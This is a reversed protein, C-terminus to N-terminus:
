SRLTEALESSQRVDSVAQEIEGLRVVGLLTLAIASDTREILGEDGLQRLQPGFADDLSRGFAAEFDAEPYSALRVGYSFRRAMLADQGLAQATVACEEGALARTTYGPYTRDNEYIVGNLQSVAGQGAGIWDRGQMQWLGYYHRHEASRTYHFATYRRYGHETLMADAVQLQEYREALTAAEYDGVGVLSNLRTKPYVWLPYLALHDLDYSLAIEVDERIIDSDAMPLGYILDIGVSPLVERAAGIARLADEREHKRGIAALVSDDFTQVGMNFKLRPVTALVELKEPMVSTPFGEVVVESDPTDAIFSRVENLLEELQAPSLMTPTGGGLQATALKRSGFVEHGGLTRLESLLASQYHAVTEPTVHKGVVTVFDCFYCRTVCFPVHAYLALPADPLATRRLDTLQAHDPALLPQFRVPSSDKSAGAKDVRNSFDSPKPDTM